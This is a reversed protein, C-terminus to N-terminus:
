HSQLDKAKYKFVSGAHNCEARNNTKKINANCWIYIRHYASTIKFHPKPEAVAKKKEPPQQKQPKTIELTCMEATTM